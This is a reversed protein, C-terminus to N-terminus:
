AAVEDDEDSVVRLVKGDADLEVVEAVGGLWDNGNRCERCAFYVEGDEAGETEIPGEGYAPWDNIGPGGPTIEYTQWVKEDRTINGVARCDLCRYALTTTEISM